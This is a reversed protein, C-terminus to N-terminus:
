LDASAAMTIAAPKQRTKWWFMTMVSERRHFHRCSALWWVRDSGPVEMSSESMHTALQGFGGYQTRAKRWLSPFTLAARAMSAGLRLRPSNRTMLSRWQTPAM